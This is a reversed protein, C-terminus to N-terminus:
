LFAILLFIYYPPFELKRMLCFEIFFFSLFNIIQLAKFVYSGLAINLFQRLESKFFGAPFIYMHCYPFNKYQSSM